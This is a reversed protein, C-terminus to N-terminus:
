RSRATKGKASAQRERIEVPLISALHETLVQHPDVANELRTKIERRNGSAL